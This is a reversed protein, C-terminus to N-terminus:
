NKPPNDVIIETILFDKFPIKLQEKRNLYDAYRNAVEIMLSGLGPGLPWNCPGGNHSILIKDEGFWGWSKRGHENDELVVSIEWAQGNPDGFIQPIWKNM